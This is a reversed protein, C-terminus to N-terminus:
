RRGASSGGDVMLTHGTISGSQPSALFCVAQAVEDPSILRGLPLDAALRAVAANVDPEVKALHARLFPTDTPGPAVANVRVGAAAFELALAKVLGHLAHKSATYASRRARAVQGSISGTFILSAHPSAVLSRLAAQASLLSGLVNVEIVRRLDETSAALLDGAFSLGANAHFVDIPGGFFREAEAVLRECDAAQTVDCHCATVQRGSPDLALAVAAAAAADLDAIVVRAGERLAHRAVAAGIGGAGGTIVFRWGDFM